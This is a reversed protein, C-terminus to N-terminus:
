QLQEEELAEDLEWFCDLDLAPDTHNRACGAENTWARDPLVFIVGVQKGKKIKLTAALLEMYEKSESIGEMSCAQADEESIVVATMGLNIGGGTKYIRDGVKFKAM